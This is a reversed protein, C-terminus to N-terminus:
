SVLGVRFFVIRGFCVIHTVLGVSRLWDCTGKLGLNGPDLGPRGVEFRVKFFQVNVSTSGLPRPSM